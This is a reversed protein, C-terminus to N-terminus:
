VGRKRDSLHFAYSDDDKSNKNKNNKAKNATNCVKLNIGDVREIREKYYLVTSEKASAPFELVVDVDQFM